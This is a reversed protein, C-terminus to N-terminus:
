ISFTKWHRRKSMYSKHLMLAVILNQQEYKGCRKSINSNRKKNSCGKKLASVRIQGLEPLMFGHISQLLQRHHLFPNDRCSSCFRHCGQTFYQKGELMTVASYLTYHSIYLNAKPRSKEHRDCWLQGFIVMTGMNGYTEMALPFHQKDFAFTFAMNREHRSNM